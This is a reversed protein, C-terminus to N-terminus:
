EGIKEGNMNFVGRTGDPMRRIVSIPLVDEALEKEVVDILRMTSKTVKVLVPAGASLQLSRAGIIRAREFRTLM